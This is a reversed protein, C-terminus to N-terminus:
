KRFDYIYISYGIKEDPEYDLLWSYAKDESLLSTVSIAVVCNIQNVGKYNNIDPLYRFDIEYYTLEAQGFYSLCVYPIDNQVMYKKLNKADQGWDINSDVLYKPGKNPGGVIENFYALYHPFVSISSFLYFLLAIVVLFNKYKFNIKNILIGSLVFIFPYIILIHRLGLNIHSTISFIFYISPPLILCYLYFPIAKVFQVIKMRRFKKTLIKYFAYLILFVTILITTIPTKLLFALPFYYWWGFDSYNGLLYSLHGHYNHFFIRVLGNFYSYAPVPITKLLKDINQGSQKQPDSIELIKIELNSLDATNQGALYAQQKEQLLQIDHDDIPKKLEFGYSIFIVLFAIIYILTFDKIFKKLSKIFTENNSEYLNKILYLVPLIPILIISSFKCALVIGLFIGTLVLNKKDDHKLYKYFYYITIFFFTTLAMDTTVYHSHAIINPSFTYLLLAFLGAILGFLQRAWKFVWLGLLISLLIAPLRGIFFITDASMESKYILDKAFQWQNYENWSDYEFPSELKDQFFLLPLASLEKFLPPHERNMRFDNKILYSYGASLHVGEDVTQSEQSNAYINFFLMLVICAIVLISYYKELVKM